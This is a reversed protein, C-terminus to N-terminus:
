SIPLRVIVGRSLQLHMSESLGRNVCGGCAGCHKSRGPRPLHCTMCVKPPFLLGDPPYAACALSCCPRRLLSIFWRGAVTALSRSSSSSTAIAIWIIVCTPQLCGIGLGGERGRVGGGGPDCISDLCCPVLKQGTSGVGALYKAANEKNVRGPSSGSALLFTSLTMCLLGTGTYRCWWCCCSCCSLQAVGRNVQLPAVCVHLSVTGDPVAPPAQQQQQRQEPAEDEM